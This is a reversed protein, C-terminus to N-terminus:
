IISAITMKSNSTRSITLNELPRDPKPEVLFPRNNEAPSLMAGRQQQKSLLLQTTQEVWEWGEWEQDGEEKRSPESRPPEVFRARVPSAASSPSSIPPPTVTLPSQIESNQWVWSGDIRAQLDGSVYAIMEEDRELNVLEGHQQRELVCKLFFSLYRGAAINVPRVDGIAASAQICLLASSYEAKFLLLLICRWIHTCLVTSAAAALLYRWEGTGTGSSDLSSPSRMCRALIRTTDHAVALCQELAHRRMEPSCAPSLNHRHLILRTNQLYIIPSLSQPDLYQNSNIAYEAPFTALCMRFHREFQELTETSVVQSRLGKALQSVSRLVHITALLPTTRPEAVAPAGESILHEEIASPLEADCDEDHILLPRGLELVVISFLSILMAARAPDVSFADQWLDTLTFSTQIYEKGKAILAPDLSHLSGCALVAFFVSAWGRPVGRLSGARYIRDYDDLLAPWHLIPFVSHICSFYHRLLVDAVSKPPLPPSDTTLLPQSRIYSPTLPFNILGQGHQRMKSCVSAYNQKASPTNIRHPRCGIEPIKPPGENPEYDHDELKPMGMRLQHLQQKAQALQRELDQVKVKRERCADCSPDKRRQRYARKHPQQSAPVIHGVPINTTEPIADQTHRAGILLSPPPGPGSPPRSYPSPNSFSNSPATPGPSASNYLLHSIKLSDSPRDPSRSSPNLSSDRAAPPQPGDATIASSGYLIPPKAQMPQSPLYSGHM